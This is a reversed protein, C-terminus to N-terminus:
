KKGGQRAEYEHIKTRYVSILHQLVSLGGNISHLRKTDEAQEAQLTDMQKIRGAIGQELTVKDAKFVLQTDVAEKLLQREISLDKAFAPNPRKM